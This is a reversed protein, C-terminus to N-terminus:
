VIVHKWQRGNKIHDITQESCGFKEAIRRQKMVGISILVKIERVKNETLKSMGHGNGKAFYFTKHEISDHMNEKHTGWRLNSVCNNKSNGDNHLGEMGNPRKSVFAELVLAHVYKKKAIKNKTLYVYYHGSLRQTAQKLIRERVGNHFILSKVNGINSVEYLGEHGIVQKWIETEVSM